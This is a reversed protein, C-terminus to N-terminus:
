RPRGIKFFRWGIFRFIMSLQDGLYKPDKFTNIMLSKIFLGVIILIFAVNHMKTALNNPIRSKISDTVWCEVVIHVRSEDGNNAVAHKYSTDLCWMDGPVMVIKEGDVQFDVKPNTIIPIHFRLRNNLGSGSLDRHPHISAEPELYYFVLLEADTVGLEALIKQSIHWQKDLDVQFWRYDYKSGGLVTSKKDSLAHALDRCEALEEQNLFGQNFIFAGYNM